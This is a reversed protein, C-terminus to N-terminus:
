KPGGVRGWRGMNSGPQRMMSHHSLNLPEEPCLPPGCVFGVSNPRCSAHKPFPSYNIRQRTNRSLFELQVVVRASNLSFTLLYGFISFLFSFCRHLKSTRRATWGIFQGLCPSPILRTGMRVTSSAKKPAFGSAGPRHKNKKETPFSTAGSNDGNNPRNVSSRGASRRAQWGATESRFTRSLGQLAALREM